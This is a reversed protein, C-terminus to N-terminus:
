DDIIEVLDSPVTRKQYLYYHVLGLPLLHDAFTKKVCTSSSKVRLATDIRLCVARRSFLPPVTTHLEHEIQHLFKDPVPSERTVSPFSKLIDTWKQPLLVAKVADVVTEVVSITKVFKNTVADILRKRRVDVLLGFHHLFDAGIISRAVDATEFTWVFERSLGLNLHLVKPGYTAILSGNAASLMVDSTRRPGSGPPIVFIEAGSDILFRRGSRVDNVFLRYAQHAAPPPSAEAAEM